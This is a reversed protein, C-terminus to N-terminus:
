FSSRREKDREAVKDNISKLKHEFATNWFDTSEQCIVVARIGIPSRAANILLQSIYGGINRAIQDANRDSVRCDIRIGFLVKFNRKADRYVCVFQHTETNESTAYEHLQLIRIVTFQYCIEPNRGAINGEYLLQKKVWTRVTNDEILRFQKKDMRRFRRRKTYEDYRDCDYIM